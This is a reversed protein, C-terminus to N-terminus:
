ASHRPERLRNCITWVLLGLFLILLAGTYPMLPVSLGALLGWAGFAFARDSKGMPGDYRRKGNVVQALVGAFETLVALLVVAMVLEPRVGPLLAFPAFLAVDSVVDGMENLIAGLRSQQGYERALMGDIANLAMRALMFAPLLLFPLKGPAWAMWAGYVLSALMAATTVANATVGRRHLWATLPRLLSQFRPKLQYITIM